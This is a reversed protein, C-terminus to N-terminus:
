KEFFADLKKRITERDFKVPVEALYKNKDQNETESLYGTCLSLQLAGKKETIIKLWGPGSEGLRTFFIDSRRYEGSKRWCIHLLM